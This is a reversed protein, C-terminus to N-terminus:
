VGDVYGACVGTRGDVKHKGLGRDTCSKTKKEVPVCVLVDPGM